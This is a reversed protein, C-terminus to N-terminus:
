GGQAFQGGQSETEENTFHFVSHPAQTTSNTLQRVRPKPQPQSRLITPDLGVDPEANLMSNAPSQGGREGESGRVLARM